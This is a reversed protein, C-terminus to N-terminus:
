VNIVCQLVVPAAVAVLPCSGGAAVLPQITLMAHWAKLKASSPHQLLGVPWQCYVAM